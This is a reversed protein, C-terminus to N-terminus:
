SISSAACSPASTGNKMIPFVARPVFKPSFIVGSGWMFHTSNLIFGWLSHGFRGFFIRWFFLVVWIYAVRSREFHPLFVCFVVCSISAIFFCFGVRIRWLRCLSKSVRM